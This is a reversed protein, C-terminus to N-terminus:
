RETFQGIRMGFREALAERIEIVAKRGVGPIRLFEAETKYLCDELFFIEGYEKLFKIWRGHLVSEIPTKSMPRDPALFQLEVVSYLEWLSDCINQTEWHERLATDATEQSPYVVRDLLRCEPNESSSYELIVFAKM